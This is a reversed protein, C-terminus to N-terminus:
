AMPWAQWALMAMAGGGASQGRVHRGGWMTSCAVCATCLAVYGATRTASKSLVGEDEKGAARKLKGERDDGEGELCWLVWTASEAAYLIVSACDRRLRDQVKRAAAGGEGAASRAADARAAVSYV